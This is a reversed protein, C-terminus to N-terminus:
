PGFSVVPFSTSAYDGHLDTAWLDYALAAHRKDKFQGAYHAMGGAYVLPRFHGTSKDRSVGKYGSTNDKRLTGNQNNQTTTCVRLHFLFSGGGNGTGEIVQDAEM